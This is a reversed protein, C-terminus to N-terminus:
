AEYEARVSARRLVSISVVGLVTGVPAPVCNLGAVMLSFARFKRARICLGSLLNLVGFCGYGVVFALFLWQSDSAAALQVAVQMSLFVAGFMAVDAVVFHGAALMALPEADTTRRVRPPPSQDTM